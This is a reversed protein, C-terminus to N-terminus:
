FKTIRFCFYLFASVILFFLALKILSSYPIYSMKLLINSITELFENM